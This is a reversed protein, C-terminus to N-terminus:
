DGTVVSIELALLKRQFADCDRLVTSNVIKKAMDLQDLYLSSLGEKLVM